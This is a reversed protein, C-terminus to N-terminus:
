VAKHLLTQFKQMDVQRIIRSNPSNASHHHYDVLTQGRALNQGTEVTIFRDEHNLVIDPTLAVAAALPDPWLVINSPLRQTLFTTMGQILHAAATDGAILKEWVDLTLKHDLTVEWSILELQMNNKHCAEFLIKAAEPDSFINFEASSTTNGRSDVAGGMTVIRKLHILFDPALRTALAINTLPGLTLLTLEGSHHRALRILALAAHEAETTRSTEVGGLGGLGDSGHIHTAYEPKYQMLPKACGKYIPIPPGTAIDLILAANHTAQDLSVNGMVITIAEIQAEPYALVMLLAIADDIGVDTDIIFKM